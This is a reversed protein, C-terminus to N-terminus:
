PNVGTKNTNSTNIVMSAHQEIQYAQQYKKERPIWQNIFDNLKESGERKKIRTQQESTTLKLFLCFDYYKRLTPLQSFSGEVITLKKPSMRQKESFQNTKPNYSQYDIAEGSHLSELLPVLREIHINGGHKAFRAKTRMELPLYFDDMHIVTAQYHKQLRKSFTTKGSGSDGDIALIVPKRVQQLIHDLQSIM